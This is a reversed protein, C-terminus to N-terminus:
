RKQTVVQYYITLSPFPQPKGADLRLLNIDIPM